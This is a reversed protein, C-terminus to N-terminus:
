RGPAAFYARADEVTRSAASRWESVSAANLLAGEASLVLVTPAGALKPVGFRAAVDLNRDGMGVDVWVLEYREAILPALAPDAFKAALARSDHCWNAGLVLLVRAGRERARALAADVDGMADRSRDFPRPEGDTAARGDMAAALPVSRGQACASVAAAAALVTILIRLRM